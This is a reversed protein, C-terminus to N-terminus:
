KLIMGGKIRISGKIQPSHFLNFNLVIEDLIPTDKQDFSEFKMKYYFNAGSWELHYLIFKSQGNHIFTWQDQVGNASYWPGAHQRYCVSGM